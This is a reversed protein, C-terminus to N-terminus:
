IESFIGILILQIVYYHSPATRRYPSVRVSLDRWTGLDMKGNRIPITLSSGTLVSKIHAPMDDVGEDSHQYRRSDEPALVSFAAALDSRVSPDANETIM